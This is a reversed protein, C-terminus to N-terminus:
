KKFYGVYSCLDYERVAYEESLCVVTSKTSLADIPLSIHNQFHGFIIKRLEEEKGLITGFSTLNPQSLQTSNEGQTFSCHFYDLFNLGTKIDFM